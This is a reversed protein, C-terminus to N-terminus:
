RTIRFTNVRVFVICTLRTRLRNWRYYTGELRAGPLLVQIRHLELTTSLTRVSLVDCVRLMIMLLLRFMMGLRMEADSDM